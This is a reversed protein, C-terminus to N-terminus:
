GNLSVAYLVLSMDRAASVEGCKGSDLSCATVNLSGASYILGKVPYNFSASVLIVSTGGVVLGFEKDLSSAGVMRALTAIIL